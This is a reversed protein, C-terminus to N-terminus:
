GWGRLLLPITFSMSERLVASKAGIAAAADLETIGETAAEVLIVSHM